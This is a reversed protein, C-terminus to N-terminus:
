RFRLTLPLGDRIKPLPLYEFSPKYGNPTAFDYVNVFHSIFLTAQMRAFHMGICKHVGGGFPIYSFAHKQYECREPSFRAPDFSNPNTWHDPVQHNFGPILLLSSNAPISVGNLTVTQLTRRMVAPTASNTRLVEDIVWGTAKM